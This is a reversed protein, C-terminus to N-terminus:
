KFNNDYIVRKITLPMTAFNLLLAHNLDLAKLYSRTRAFDIDHLSSIAKLELLLQGEILLDYRHTGVQIGDYYVHCEEQSQVEFNCNQLEIILAKEYISEIFGPGLQRHVQIACGIVRETLKELEM